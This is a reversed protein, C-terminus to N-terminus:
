PGKTTTTPEPWWRWFHLARDRAEALTMTKAVCVARSLLAELADKRAVQAADFQPWVDSPDSRGGAWRPILHDFEVPKQGPPIGYAALVRRKEAVTLSRRPNYAPTCVGDTSAIVAGPTVWPRPCEVVVPPCDEAALTTATTPPEGPLQATKDEVGCGAVLVVLLGALLSRRM